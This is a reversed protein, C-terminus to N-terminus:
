PKMKYKDRWDQKHSVSSMPVDFEGELFLPSAIETTSFYRDGFDGLGPRIYKGSTLGDDLACTIVKVSPYAEALARLGEPTCCMNVFIIHEQQVGKDMLTQIALKASGGTALMPDLLLIYKSSMSNPLQCILLRPRKEPDAEDRQILLNGQHIGVAIRRYSNLLADGSRLIAVACVQNLDPMSLGRSTGCQSLAAMHSLPSVSM